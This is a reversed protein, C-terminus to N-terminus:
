AKGLIRQVNPGAFDCRFIHTDAEHQWFKEVLYGFILADPWNGGNIDIIGRLHQSAIAVRLAWATMGGCSFTFGYFDVFKPAVARLSATLAERYGPHASIHCQLPYWRQFRRLPMKITFIEYKQSALIYYNISVPLVFCFDFRFCSAILVKSPQNALGICARM